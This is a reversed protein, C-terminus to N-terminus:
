ALNVEWEILSDINAKEVILWPKIGVIVQNQNLIYDITLCLFLFLLFVLVYHCQDSFFIFYM